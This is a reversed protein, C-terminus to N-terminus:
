AVYWSEQNKYMEAYIGDRDLLQRHVGEEAIKGEHFVIIRDARKAFGLRHSIFLVTRDGALDYIMDYIEIESIPDLYATPEDLIWLTANPNALLRAIALRQWQGKSLEIGKQLQGLQTDIGQPLKQVREKLGVRDLLGWIEEDSFKHNQYGVEINERITMQYQAFDQLICSVSSRLIAEAKIGKHGDVIIEGDTPNTLAMLLNTCTTKGSGNHGVVALKEGHKINLKLGKLAYREAQPYSYIINRFSIDTAKEETSIKNDEEYSLIESYSKIFKCDVNNTSINTQVGAFTDIVGNLLQNCLMLFGIGHKGAVIEFAVYILMAIYPVNFVIRATQLTVEFKKFIKMRYKYEIDYLEDWRSSVFGFLRNFKFEQHSVKDGSLSFFYNQKQSYPQIEDWINMIVSFMNGSAKNFIVVLAFYAVVVWINIQVLFYGYVIVNFVSQIYFMTSAILSKMAEFTKTRVEHIKVYTENNEYYDVKIKSLKTNLQKEFSYSVSLNMKNVLLTKVIDIIKIIVRALFFLSIGMVVSKFSATKSFLMYAANITYETAKLLIFTGIASIATAAVLLAYAWPCSRYALSNASKLAELTYGKQKNRM